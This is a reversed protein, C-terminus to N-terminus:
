RTGGDVVVKGPFRLDITAPEVRRKYVDPIVDTLRMAKKAYDGRGFFVDSGRYRLVPEGKADVFVVAGALLETKDERVTRILKLADTLDGASGGGVKLGGRKEYVFSPLFDWDAGSVKSLVWGGDDVLFGGDPTVALAVPVREDVEVRVADPLERRVTVGKVWPHAAIREAMSDVDLRFISSGSPDGAYAMLDDRKVYTLGSVTVERIGFTGMSAIRDAGALAAWGAGALLGLTVGGALVVLVTGRFLGRRPSAKRSSPKTKKKKARKKNPRRSLIGFPV